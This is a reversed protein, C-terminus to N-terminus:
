LEGGFLVTWRFTLDLNTPKVIVPFTVWNTMVSGGPGGFLALETIDPSPLAGTVVGTFVLRNTYAGDSITGVEEGEVDDYAVGEVAFRATENRLAIGDHEPAEPADANGDGVGNGVAFHTIGSIGSDAALRALLLYMRDVVLNDVRPLRQVEGTERDVLAMDVFGQSKITRDALRM